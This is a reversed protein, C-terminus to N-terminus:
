ILVRLLGSSVLANSVHTLTLCILVKLLQLMHFFVYQYVVHSNSFGSILPFCLDM